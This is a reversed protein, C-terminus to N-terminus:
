DRKTYESINLGDRMAIDILDSESARRVQEAKLFAGGYGGGFAAGMSDNYLDKRLREFDVNEQNM